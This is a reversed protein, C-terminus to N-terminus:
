LLKDGYNIYKPHKVEKAFQKKLIWEKIEGDVLYTKQQILADIKYAKPIHKFTM